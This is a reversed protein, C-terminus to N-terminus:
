GDDHVTTMRHRLCSRPHDAYYRCASSIKTKQVAQNQYERRLLSLPLSPIMVSQHHRYRSIKAFAPFYSSKVFSRVIPVLTPLVSLHEARLIGTLAHSWCHMSRTSTMKWVKADSKLSMLDVVISHEELPRLLMSTPRMMAQFARIAEYGACV